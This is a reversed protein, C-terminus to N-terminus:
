RANYRDLAAQHIAIARSINLRNLTNVYDDFRDINQRGTIFELVATSQYTNIESMLRAFEQAEAATMSDMPLVMSTGASETWFKRIELSTATVAPNGEHEFRLFYGIHFKFKLIADLVSYDPNNMMMDTYRTRAFQMGGFTMTEGTRTYTKGEQGYNYEMWGPETYGYNLFRLAAEVNKSATTVSACYCNRLYFNKLRWEVREGARQVPYYGGVLPTVSLMWDGVTDPSGIIAGSEGTTLLRKHADSDRTPFDRDILGKRYWDNMLVLYQRFEPQAPGYFVKGNKHYFSPGIGFASILAGSNTDVGSNSILFPATANKQDRFATLVREVDAITEPNKLGLEDLWDKRYNIGVYSYEEYPSICYILAMHGADTYFAKREEAPVVTNLIKLYDPAYKPIQDNLRLIVGDNIYREVGGTYMTDGAWGSMIIDPLTGGAIMLNFSEQESGVPPQQFTLEVNTAKQVNQFAINDKWDSEKGTWMIPAFMSLKAAGTSTTSGSQQGGGPFLFSNGIILVFLIFVIRRKM